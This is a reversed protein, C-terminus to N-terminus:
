WCARRSSVAKAWASHVGLNFDPHTFSSRGAQFDDLMGTKKLGFLHGMLAGEGTDNLGGTKRVVPITGYRMAIMQLSRCPRRLQANM